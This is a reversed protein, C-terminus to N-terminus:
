RNKLDNSTVQLIAKGMRELRGADDSQNAAMGGADLDYVIYGTSDTLMFGNNYTNMATPYRYTDSLVDRSFAFEDHSIGMRGLLTAALDTQNCILSIEKPQRVAGGTWIMPIHNYLLQTNDIGGYRISHDPLMIVLLNDWAPTARLRSIFQGICRDLYHFSNLVEDDMDRTPVDWPEHSSLTSYGILFRGGDKRSTIMDYLRGFTIDDRVGWKASKQEEETFDDMSTLREFGTSILYSRMNTFNIDGGYLYETTYGERRLSAAISPMTRSKDPMKMVSSNPFSPYGSLACVTGRDTRWSNGYCRTFYIGEHALRNLNPMVDKRGGIETFVGGCGELLIVVIDPRRSNLLLTDGGRSETSYVGAVLERCTQEDYYNYIDYDKAGHEFSSLFCFLPNVAAHNLYQKQSFYVQGINTTADTVGGRIGIILVPIAAICVATGAIKSGLHGAPPMEKPTVSTFVKYIIYTTVATLAIRVTLYWASVSSTIGRPTELYPLVSSNLKFGWFEYLSTDSVFTAALAAAIIGYWVKLATRMPKWRNWWLSVMTVLFPLLLLYIATSADLSLGHWAVAAFDSVTFPYTGSNYAMFFLKAIIFIMVTMLYVKIVFLTRQRM